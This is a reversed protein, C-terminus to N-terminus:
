DLAPLAARAATLAGERIEEAGPASGDEFDSGNYTATIVANELQVTVVAERIQQDDETTLHERITASDGLGEVPEAGKPAGGAPRGGPASLITYSIDLWRYDYGDLANWSCSTRRVADKARRPTGDPKAGPVLTDVTKAPLAACPDAPPESYRLPTPTASAPRDDGRPDAGTSSSDGPAPDPRGASEQPREESHGSTTMAVGAVTLVAVPLLRAGLTLVLSARSSLSRM